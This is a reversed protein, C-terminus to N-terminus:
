QIQIQQSAPILAGNPACCGTTYTLTFTGPNSTSSVGLSGFTFTDGVATTQTSGTLAAGFSISVNVCEAVPTPNGGADVAQLVPQVSFAAGRTGGEAPIRLALAYPKGRLLSIPDSILPATTPAAFQIRYGDGVRGNLTTGTFTAVGDANTKTTDNLIQLTGTGSSPVQTIQVVVDATRVANGNDDQLQLVPQTPLREGNTAIASPATVFGFRAPPGTEGTATFTTSHGDPLSATLTNPGATTGLIWAGALSAIGQENTSSSPATGGSLSGGGSAVHWTVSVNAVPNGFSDAAMVEPAVAVANGAVVVQADGAHRTLTAVAGALATARFIATGLIQNTSKDLVRAEVKQPGLSSSGLTWEASATGEASTTVLTPSVTGGGASASFQVPQGPVPREKSDVVKVQLADKLQSAVTASQDQGGLILIAAPAGFRPETSKSGDCTLLVFSGAAVVASYKLARHLSHPTM